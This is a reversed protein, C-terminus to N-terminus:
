PQDAAGCLENLLRAATQYSWYSGAQVCAQTLKATVNVGELCQLFGHAPRFRHECGDCRRRELHVVVPGFSTLLKRKVTGLNSLEKEGCAPRSDVQKTQGDVCIAYRGRRGEKSGVM